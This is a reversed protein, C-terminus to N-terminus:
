LGVIPVRKDQGGGQRREAEQKRDNSKSDRVRSESDPNTEQIGSQGCAMRDDDANTM